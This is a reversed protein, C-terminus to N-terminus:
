CSNKVFCHDRMDDGQGNTLNGGNPVSTFMLNNNDNERHGLGMYHGLEHALVFGSTNVSGEIAVVSGDMGKADKDCPGDVRSLGITSGSYTLVFFIDYADNPVTWENTLDEAEGDNNINERGNADATTIFYHEVRGVGIDVQAYNNRTFDVASDIEARDAQTFQDSGVRICNIHVHKGQLRRFQTLLSLQNPAGEMYGYFDRVVRFSDPNELRICQALQRLSAM